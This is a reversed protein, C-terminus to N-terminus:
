GESSFYLTAQVLSLADAPATPIEFTMRRSPPLVMRTEPTWIFPYGAQVNWSDVHHTVITGASAQTTDNRRVTGAFATDGFSIPVATVAAGGSGVTTQGSRIRIKVGEAQADGYDAIGTQGIILKHIVVIRTSPAVISLLDQAVSVSQDEVIATYMRSM